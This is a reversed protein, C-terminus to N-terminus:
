LFLNIGKFEPMARDEDTFTCPVTPPPASPPKAPQLGMDTFALGTVDGSLVITPIQGKDWLAAVAEAVSPDGALAENVATILRQSLTLTAQEM